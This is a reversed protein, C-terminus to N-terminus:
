AGKTTNTITVAGSCAGDILLQTLQDVASIRASLAARESRLDALGRDLAVSQDDPTQRITWLRFSKAHPRAANIDAALVHPSLSRGETVRAIRAPAIVVSGGDVDVMAAPKPATCFVVDGPETYRGVPYNAAFVLRDITRSGVRVSGALEQVGLVRTSGATAMGLHADAIRHGPVIRVVKSVIAAGLTTAKGSASSSDERVALAPLSEAVRPQQLERGLETARVVLESGNLGAASRRSVDNAVLAGRRSVLTRTYVTRTFRPDHGRRVPSHLGALLDTVLSDIVDGDLMVNALDAVMTWPEIPDAGAVRLGAPVPGLVWLAMGLRPRTTVLGVPLRVIGRVKQTRLIASREDAATSADTLASAPAIVVGFGDSTMELVSSDIADLIQRDTMSPRGPSPYQALLVAAPPMDFGGFEDTILPQRDVDHILLRRRALRETPEDGASTRADLSTSEDLKNALEILLDSGGVTPDIYSPVAEGTEAALAMALEAVLQRGIPTLGVETHGPVHHRFRQAMLQEFAALPSYAADALLDAYRALSALRDGVAGLERYLLRDDPDTEDALDLLDAANLLGLSHGSTASLCLLATLGLFVVEDGRPSGGDVSAFAPADERVTRNKGRGTAELWGVIDDVGFYEQGNETTISPPFPLHSHASRTRWMSVVPRQVKALHAIDTLGLRMATTSTTPTM